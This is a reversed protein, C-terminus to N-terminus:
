SLEKLRPWPGANVAEFGAQCLLDAAMGSRAGSACAVVV